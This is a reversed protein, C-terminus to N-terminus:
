FPNKAGRIEFHVHPGTTKGTLGIKAIVQGREVREGVSVLNESNHAYLTQTGNPHQIVIYNGYGGNWGGVKNLIVVGDASAFIPSGYTSAFDIANYLYGHLGQSRRGGAVPRLYYGEYVPNTNVRAKSGSTPISSNAIEGDPVLVVTGIALTKGEELDNFQIIEDMDAGYRKAISKISDGKAVTHSVGSIPLITLTQGAKLAAGKKLNNAWIITNASVDFMKAVQSLTDGDRVVYISIKDNKPLDPIDAATGLPGSDPLLAAGGVITTDGGGVGAMKPNITQEAELLDVTQSNGPLSLGAVRSGLFSNTFTSLIGAQVPESLALLGAVM